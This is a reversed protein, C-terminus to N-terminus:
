AARESGPAEPDEGSSGRGSGRGDSSERDRPSSGTQQVPERAGAELAPISGPADQRWGFGYALAPVLKNALTCGVMVGAWAVPLAFLVDLPYHAGAYVRSLGVLVVVTCGIVATRAHHPSRAGILTLALVIALAAAVHGSPFSTVGVMRLLPDAEPLSPRPRAVLAKVVGVAGWGSLSTILFGTADLPRGRILALWGTLAAIILVVGINSLAVQIVAALVDLVPNRHQTIGELLATEGATPQPSLVLLRGITAVVLVTVLPVAVRHRLQPLRWPPGGPLPSTQKAPYTM